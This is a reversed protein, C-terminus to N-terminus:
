KLLEITFEKYNKATYRFVRWGMSAALNYKTSDTTYGSVTTHRSKKGGYVGEYEVAILLEPIAIDFRFKRTHHFRHETVYEIGAQELLQKIHQIGKPETPEFTGAKSDESSNRPKNGSEPVNVKYDRIKGAAKLREIDAM